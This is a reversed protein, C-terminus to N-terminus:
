HLTMAVSWRGGDLCAPRETKYRPLAFSFSFYERNPDLRATFVNEQALISHITVQVGGVRGGNLLYLTTRAVDTAPAANLRLRFSNALLHSAVCCTRLAQDWDSSKTSTRLHFFGLHAETNRSELFSLPHLWFTM